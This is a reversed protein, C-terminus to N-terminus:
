NELRDDSLFNVIYKEPKIGRSKADMHSWDDYNQESVENAYEGYAVILEPVGWTDLIESPRIHLVKGVYHAMQVYLNFEAFFEDSLDKAPKEKEM